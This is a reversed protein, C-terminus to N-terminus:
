PPGQVKSLSFGNAKITQPFHIIFADLIVNNGELNKNECLTRSPKTSFLLYADFM